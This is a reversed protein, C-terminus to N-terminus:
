KGRLTPASDEETFHRLIDVEHIVDIARTISFKEATQESSTDRRLFVNVLPDGIKGVFLVKVLLSEKTNILILGYGGM